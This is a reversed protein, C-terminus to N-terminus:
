DDNLLIPDDSLISGIGNQLLYKARNKDNVTAVHCETKLNKIRELASDDIFENGIHVIDAGIEKAIEDADIPCPSFALCTPVSQHKKAIMRLIRESFSIIFFGDSLSSKFPKLHRIVTNVVDIEQGSM